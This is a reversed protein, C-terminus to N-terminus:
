KSMFGKGCECRHGGGDVDDGFVQDNPVVTGESATVDRAKTKERDRKLVWEFQEM